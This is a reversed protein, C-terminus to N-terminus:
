KPLVVVNTVDPTLGSVREMVNGLDAATVSTQSLDLVVGGGQVQPGKEAISLIINDPNNTILNTPDYTNTVTTTGNLAQSLIDDVGVAVRGGVGAHPREPQRAALHRGPWSASRDPSGDANFGGAETISLLNGDDYYNFLLQHGNEPHNPDFLHDTISAIQGRIQPKKATAKTFYTINFSRNPAPNPGQGAADTVQTIHFKPGGPDDGPQVASLTFSLTNGNKNTVFTPFRASNYWFTVRDPRSIAWFRPNTTDTTV